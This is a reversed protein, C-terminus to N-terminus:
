KAEMVVIIGHRKLANMKSVAAIDTYFKAKDKMSTFAHETLYKDGMKLTYLKETETNM